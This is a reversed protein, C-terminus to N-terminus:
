IDHCMEGNVTQFYLCIKSKVWENPLHKKGAKRKIRAYWFPNEATEVTALFDCGVGPPHLIVRTSQIVDHGKEM